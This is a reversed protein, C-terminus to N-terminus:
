RGEKWSLRPLSTGSLYVMRSKVSALSSSTANANAPGYAFWKCTMGSLYGCWCRMFWNKCAPHGEQQRVLLILVRFAYFKGVTVTLYKYQTGVPLSLRLAWWSVFWCTWQYGFVSEFLFTEPKRCFLDTSCLLKLDTSLRNWARPAAVPFARDCNTSMDATHRPQRTVLCAICITRTHRRSTDTLGLHVGAQTWSTVQSSALVRQQPDERCSTVPAVRPSGSDCPQVSQSGSCYTCRPGQTPEPATLLYTLKIHRRNM